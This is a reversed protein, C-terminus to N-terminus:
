KKEEDKVAKKMTRINKGDKYDYHIENMVKKVIFIGYCGIEREATILEDPNKIGLKNILVNSDPYCYEKDWEYEYSYGM